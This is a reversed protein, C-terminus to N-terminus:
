CRDIKKFLKNMKKGAPVNVSTGDEMDFVNQNQPSLKYNISWHVLYFSNLLYHFFTCLHKKEM